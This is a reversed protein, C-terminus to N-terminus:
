ERAAIVEHGVAIADWQGPWVEKVLERTHNPDWADVISARNEKLIQWVVEVDRRSLRDHRPGCSIERSNSQKAIINSPDYLIQIVNQVLYERSGKKGQTNMYEVVKLIRQLNGENLAKPFSLEDEQSGTPTTDQVGDSNTEHDKDNEGEYVDLETSPSIIQSSYEVYDSEQSAEFAGDEVERKLSIKLETEITGLVSYSVKSEKERDLHDEYEMQASQAHIEEPNALQSGSPALGWNLYPSARRSPYRRHM